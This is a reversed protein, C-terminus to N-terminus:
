EGEKSEEDEEGEKCGFWASLDTKWPSQSEITSSDKKKEPITHAFLSWTPFLYIFICVCVCRSTLQFIM